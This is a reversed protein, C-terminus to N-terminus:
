KAKYLSAIIESSREIGLSGSSLAIDYNTHKGM